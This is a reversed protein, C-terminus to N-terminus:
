KKERERRDKQKKERERRDKYKKERGGIKIKTKQIEIIKYEKFECLRIKIKTNQTFLSKNTGYCM